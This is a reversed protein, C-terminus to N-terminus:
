PPSRQWAAPMHAHAPGHQSPAPVTGCPRRGAASFYPSQRAALLGGPAARDGPRGSPEPEPNAPSQDQRVREPQRNNAITGSGSRMYAELAQRVLESPRIGRQSAESLVHEALLGPLRASIVQTGSPRTEIEEAEDEWEGDEESHALVEDAPKKAENMDAKGEV